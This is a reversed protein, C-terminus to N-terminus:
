LAPNCNDWARTLVAAIFQFARARQTYVDRREKIEQDMSHFDPAPFSRGLLRQVILILNWHESLREAVVVERGKTPTCGPQASLSPKWKTELLEIVLNFPYTAELCRKKAKNLEQIGKSWSTSSPEGM